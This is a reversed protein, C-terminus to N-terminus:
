GRNIVFLAEVLSTNQKLALEKSLCVLENSLSIGRIDIYKPEFVHQKSLSVQEKQNLALEESLFASEKSISISRIPIYKPLPFTKVLSTNQKLFLSNEILFGTLKM